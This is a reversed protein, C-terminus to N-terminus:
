FPKTNSSCIVFADALELVIRKEEEEKSVTNIISSVCWRSVTKLEHDSMNLNNGVYFYREIDPYMKEMIHKKGMLEYYKFMCEKFTSPKRTSTYDTTYEEMM